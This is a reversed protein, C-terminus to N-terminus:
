LKILSSFLQKEVRTRLRDACTLGLPNKYILEKKVFPFNHELLLREAYFHTPNQASFFLGFGHTEIFNLVDEDPISKKSLELYPFLPAWSLGFAALAGTLQMEVDQILLTKNIYYPLGSLFKDLFLASLAPKKFLLFYSQLHHAGQFSDTLGVVHHPLTTAASFIPQLSSLPGIMSDNALLVEEFDNFSGGNALFWRSFDSWSGFDLGLNAREIYHDLGALTRTFQNSPAADRANIFITFFGQEKLAVFYDELYTPFTSLDPQYGAM